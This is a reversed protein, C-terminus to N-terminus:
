ILSATFAQEQYRHQVGAFTSALQNHREAVAFHWSNTNLERIRRGDGWAAVPEPHLEPYAPYAPDMLRSIAPRVSLLASSEAALSFNGRVAAACRRHQILVRGFGIASNEHLAVDKMQSTQRQVPRDPQRRRQAPLQVVCRRPVTRHVVYRPTLSPVVARLVHGL